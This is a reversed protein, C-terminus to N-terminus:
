TGSFQVDEFVLSPVRLPSYPFPDAGVAVLRQWFDRHNGTLNMEGVAGAVQGGQVRAGLIGLSFDGTAPNANGGLFGTVLIGDGAAALLEPLTARGPTLVVNSHAGTTPPRGLKRGYYVDVYYNRLEGAAIVPLPRAALGEGDFTRSGLGRVLLPQDHLDLLPTGVAQGLQGEFCSRRQQLAAGQLPELLSGVLRGAARNELVLTMRGSGVKASGLRASARRGAEQGVQGAPPLDALHTASTWWSDEPRRGDSDQVTVAAGLYFGTEQAEGEFGNSHLQLSESRQTTVGATVSIVAPHAQLARQEVEALLALRRDIDLGDRLVTVRDAIEFLEELRHSIFIIATGAERLRRM